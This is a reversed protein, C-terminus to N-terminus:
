KNDLHILLAHTLKYHLNLLGKKKYEEAVKPNETLFTVHDNLALEVAHKLESIGGNPPMNELTFIVLLRVTEPDYALFSPCIIFIKATSLDWAPKKDGADFWVGDSYQGRTMVIKAYDLLLLKGNNLSALCSSDLFQLFLALSSASINDM